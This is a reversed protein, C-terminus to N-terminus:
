KSKKILQEALGAALLGASLYLFTPVLDPMWGIIKVGAMFWGILGAVRKSSIESESSLMSKIFEWFGKM